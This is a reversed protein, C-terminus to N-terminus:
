GALDPCFVQYIADQPLSDKCQSKPNFFRRAISNAKGNEQLNAAPATVPPLMEALWNWTPPNGDKSGGGCLLNGAIGRKLGADAGTKAMTSKDSEHDM